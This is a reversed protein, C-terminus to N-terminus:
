KTYRDTVFCDLDLVLSDDCWEPIRRFAKDIISLAYQTLNKPCHVVIEDHVQLVIDAESTDCLEKNVELMIDRLVCRAARQVINETLKGGYINVPYKGNWYTSDTGTPTVISKLNPFGMHMGDPMLLQKYKVTLGRQQDSATRDHMKMLYTDCKRWYAPIARYLNRFTQVYRQADQATVDHTLGAAGTLFTTQLKKWGMQYGLGLVCVKGIRREITHKKGEESQDFTDGFVQLAFDIYPDGKNKYISLLRQDQAFWALLRAEINSSDAIILDYGRQAQLAQRLPSTRKLNQLNIKNTGSWRLTHAGAYKLPVGILTSNSRCNELFTNARTIEQRSAIANRADWVNKYQPYDKQLKIWELDSKSFPWKLNDPNKLTPSPVQKIPIGESQIWNAFQKSSSLVKEPVNQASILQKLSVELSELYEGVKRIDVSLKPCFYMKHTLAMAALEEDPFAQYMTQFLAFCVNVDNIAYEKLTYFEETTLEKKGKTDTLGSTKHPGNPFLRKALGALSNKGFPFLARGMALTCYATPVDIAYHLALICGDFFMNHAVIIDDEEILNTLYRKIDTSIYKTPEDNIKVAVGHVKFDDHQIYQEYSLKTLSYGTAYYTEFDLTIVKM